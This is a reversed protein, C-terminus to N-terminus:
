SCAYLSGARRVMGVVNTNSKERPWCDVFFYMKLVSRTDVVVVYYIYLYSFKRISFLLRNACMVPNYKYQKKWMNQGYYKKWEINAESKKEESSLLSFFIRCM